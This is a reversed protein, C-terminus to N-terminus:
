QAAAECPTHSYLCGHGIGGGVDGVKQLLGFGDAGGAERLEVFGGELLECFFICGSSAVERTELIGELQKM